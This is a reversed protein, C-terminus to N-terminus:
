LWITFLRWRDLILRQKMHKVSSKRIWFLVPWGRKPPKGTPVWINCQLCDENSSKVGFNALQPCPSSSQTFNGPIKKTGYSFSGPLPQPKIWRRKGTPPLAYPISSFRHCKQKRTGAELLTTGQLVGRGDITVKMQPQRPKHHLIPLSVLELILHPTHHSM